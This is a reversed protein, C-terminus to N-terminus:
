ALFSLSIGRTKVITLEYANQNIMPNMQEMFNYPLTEVYIAMKGAANAQVIANPAM